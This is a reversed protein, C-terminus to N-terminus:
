NNLFLSMLQCNISFVLLQDNNLQLVLSSFYISQAKGCFRPRAEGVLVWCSELLPLPSLCKSKNLLIEAIDLLNMLLGPIFVSTLLRLSFVPLYKQIFVSFNIAYTHTMLLCFNLFICSSPFSSYFSGLRNLYVPHRAESPLTGAFSTSGLLASFKM